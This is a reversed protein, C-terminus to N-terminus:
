GDIGWREKLEKLENPTLTQIGQDKCDEVILNIFHSMEETDFHSSGLIRIYSTFKGDQSQKYFKWHIKGEGPKDDEVSIASVPTKTPITVVVYDGNEDRYYKPQERLYNEYLEYSTTDLCKALEGLLVWCYGNANLSRRERWKVLTVRLDGKLADLLGMDADEVNLHVTSGKEFFNPEIGKIRAKIEM